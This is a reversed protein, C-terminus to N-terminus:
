RVLFRKSMARASGAANVAKVGCQVQKGKLKATVALTRATAGPKAKGNVRWHYAYRTPRGSWSGRLCILTAGQRKVKPSTVNVPKGAAGAKSVKISHTDTAMTEVGEHVYGCLLLPGAATPTYAVPVEFNGEVPVYIAVSDGGDSASAYALQIANQFTAPCASVVSTPIAYVNLYRNLFVDDPVVGSAKITSVKGVVATGPGSLTLTHGDVASAPAVGPGTVVAAAVVASVAFHLPRRFQMGM